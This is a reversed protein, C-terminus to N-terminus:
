PRPMVTCATSPLMVTTAGKSPVGAWLSPMRAPSTILLISPSSARPMDMSSATFRSRPGLPLGTFIVITRWPYSVGSSNVTIRSSIGSCETGYKKM